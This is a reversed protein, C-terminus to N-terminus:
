KKYLEMKWRKIAWYCNKREVLNEDPLISITYNKHVPINKNGIVYESHKKEKKVIDFKFYCDKYLNGKKIM